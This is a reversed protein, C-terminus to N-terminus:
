GSRFKQVVGQEGILFTELTASLVVDASEDRCLSQFADGDPSQDEVNTGAYAPCCFRVAQMCPSRRLKSRVNDAPHSSSSRIAAVDSDPLCVTPIVVGNPDTYTPKDGFPEWRFRCGDRRCREGVALLNVTFGNLPVCEAEEQFADIFTTITHDPFACGTVSVGCGLDHRKTRNGLTHAPCM